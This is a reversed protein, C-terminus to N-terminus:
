GFYGSRTLLHTRTLACLALEQSLSLHVAISFAPLIEVYLLAARQTVNEGSTLTPIKTLFMGNFWIPRGLRAPVQVFGCLSYVFM